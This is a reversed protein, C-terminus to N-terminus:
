NGGGTGAGSGGAGAGAGAGAGSGAGAGTSGTGTSTGGDGASGSTGTGQGSSQTGGHDGGGKSPGKETVHKANGSRDLPPPVHVAGDSTEVQSPTLPPNAANPNTTDVDGGTTTGHAGSNAFVAPAALLATSSLAAAILKKM